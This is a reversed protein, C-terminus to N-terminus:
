SAVVFANSNTTKEQLEIKDNTTDAPESGIRAVGTAKVSEKETANYNLQQGSNELKLTAILNRDLGKTGPVLLEEQLSRQGVLVLRTDGSNETTLHQMDTDNSVKNEIKKANLFDRADGQLQKLNNTKDGQQRIDDQNGEGRKNKQIMLRCDVNEHGQHKCYTCYLPLNDFMVHLQYHEDLFLM